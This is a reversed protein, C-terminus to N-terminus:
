KKMRKLKPASVPKTKLYKALLIIVLIIVLLSVTITFIYYWVKITKTTDVSLTRSPKNQLHNVYNSIISDVYPIRNNNSLLINGSLRPNIEMLYMIDNDSNHVYEIEIFGSYNTASVVKQTTDLIKGYLPHDEKIIFHNLDRFRQKHFRKEKFFLPSINVLTAIITGNDCLCDIAYLKINTLYPQVVYNTTIKHNEYENVVNEFDVLYMDKSGMTDKNKVIYKPFQTKEVFRKFETPSFTTNNFTPIQTIGLERIFASCTDKNDLIYTLKPDNVLTNEFNYYYLENAAKMSLPLFIANSDKPYKSLHQFYVIESDLGYHQKFYLRLIYGKYDSQKRTNDLIIVIKNNSLNTKTTMKTTM